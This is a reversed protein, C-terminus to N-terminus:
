LGRRPWRVARWRRRFRPRSGGERPFLDDAMPADVAEIAADHGWGAQTGGLQENYVCVGTALDLRVRHPYPSQSSPEAGAPTSGGLRAAEESCLLPCCPCRPDYAATPRVVAEWTVRRHHEVVRLHEITTGPESGVGDALEVPDLMAVDYYNQLMPDDHDLKWRPPRAGVFGDETMVPVVTDARPLQVTRDRDKAYGAVTRPEDRRVTILRGDLAEARLLNPRRVWVRVTDPFPGPVLRNSVTYRLTLWRWPSSRAAARFCEPTPDM